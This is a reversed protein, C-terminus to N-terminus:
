SLTATNSKTIGQERKPRVRSACGSLLPQSREHGHRYIRHALQQYCCLASGNARSERAVLALNIRFLISTMEPAAIHGWRNISRFVPGEGLQAAHIWDLYAEVPCLQKLAPAKYHQGLRSHDGKSRPVFIEMGKGSEAQVHEVCLRALEDSRFARWFGMLLLAKDRIAQLGNIQSGNQVTQDLTSLLQKLHHLQIPKAQKPTTPHLEAIGKFCRKLTPHKQQTQFDRIKTGRQL